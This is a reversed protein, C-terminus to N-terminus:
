SHSGVRSPNTDKYSVGSRERERQRQGQGEGVREWRVEKKEKGGRERKEM